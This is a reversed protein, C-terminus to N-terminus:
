GVNRETSDTSTAGPRTKPSARADTGTSPTLRSRPGLDFAAARDKPSLRPESASASRDSGPKEDVPKPPNRFLESYKERQEASGLISAPALKQSDRAWRDLKAGRVVSVVTETTVGETALREFLERRKWDYEAGPKGTEAKWASFLEVGVPDAARFSREQRETPSLAPRVAQNREPSEEPDLDRAEGKGQRAKGLTVLQSLQPTEHSDTVCRSSNDREPTDTVDQETSRRSRAMRQRLRDSRKCTQAEIYKPWFIRDEEMVWIQEDLLAKLGVQVIEEPLKTAARLARVAGHHGFEFVGSRDFKRLALPLLANGQWGLMEWTVTDATYLRVYEEDAFNV